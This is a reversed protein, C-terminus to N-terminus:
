GGTGLCDLAARACEEDQETSPAGAVGIAGELKGKLTIPLGGRVHIIPAGAGTVAATAPHHPMISPVYESPRGTEAAAVAMGFSARSSLALTGDMRQHAILHGASDCVSVSVKIALDAAKALAAAIARNADALPLAM